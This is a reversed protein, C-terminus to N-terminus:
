EQVGGGDFCCDQRWSERAGGTMCGTTPRELLSTGNGRLCGDRRWRYSPSSSAILDRGRAAVWCSQVLLGAIWNGDRRNEEWRAAGMKIRSTETRVLAMQWEQVATEKVQALPGPLPDLTIMVVCLMQSQFVRSHGEHGYQSSM